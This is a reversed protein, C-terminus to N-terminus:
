ELKVELDLLDRRDWQEPVEQTATREQFDSQVLLGLLEKSDQPVMCVLRDPKEELVSAGMWVRAAQLGQLGLFDKNVPPDPKVLKDM